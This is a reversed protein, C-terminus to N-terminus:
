VASRREDARIRSLIAKWRIVGERVLKPTTGTVDVVTSPLDTRAPGGDIILDIGDSFYQQVDHATQAPSKEAPNASTATLAGGCSRILECVVVDNPLRIGVTGTGATIEPPLETRAKGILTLPGPWFRETLLNFAPLPQNIFRAVQDRDSIVILIPKNEDRQKLEKIKRVAAASLPDAGLGYFTDTRFAIIGGHAIVKAIDPLWEPKQPIIM